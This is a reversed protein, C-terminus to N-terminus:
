KTWFNLLYIKDNVELWFWKLSFNSCVYISDSFFSSPVLSRISSFRVRCCASLAFQSAVVTSTPSYGPAFLVWRRSRRCRIKLRLAVQSPPSPNFELICNCLKSYCLVHILKRLIVFQFLKHGLLPVWFVNKLMWVGCWKCLWHSVSM